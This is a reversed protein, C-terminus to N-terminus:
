PYLGNADLDNKVVHEANLPSTESLILIPKTIGSSRLESQRTYLHYRFIIQRMPYRGHFLFLETGTLM